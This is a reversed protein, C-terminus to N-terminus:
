NDNNNEGCNISKVKKAAFKEVCKGLERSVNKDLVFEITKQLTLKMYAALIKLDHACNASIISTVKIIEKEEKTM